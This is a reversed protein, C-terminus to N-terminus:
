QLKANAVNTHKRADECILLNGNFDHFNTELPSVTQVLSERITELVTNVREISNVSLQDMKQYQIPFFPHLTIASFKSTQLQLLFPEFM